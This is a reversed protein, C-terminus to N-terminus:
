LLSEFYHYIQLQENKNDNERQPAAINTARNCLPPIHQEFLIEYPPDM